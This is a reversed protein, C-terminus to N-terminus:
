GHDAGKERAEMWERIAAVPWATIRSSLKIPAPFKGGRVMRWLTSSSFPLITNILQRERLYGSQPLQGLPVAKNRTLKPSHVHHPESM